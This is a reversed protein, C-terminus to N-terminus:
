TWLYGRVEILRHCQKNVEEYTQSHLPDGKPYIEKLYTNKWWYYLEEIEKKAHRFEDSYDWNIHGTLLDEQEVVEVLLEFMCHLILMDRDIWGHGELSSPKVTRYRHWAWCRLLYWWNSIKNRQQRFFRKFNYWKGKHRKM